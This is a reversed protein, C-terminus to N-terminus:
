KAKAKRRRLERETPNSWELSQELPTQEVRERGCRRKKGVEKERWWGGETGTERKTEKRKRNGKQKRRKKGKRDGGRKRRTRNVEPQRERKELYLLM